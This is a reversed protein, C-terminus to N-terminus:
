WASDPEHSKEWNSASQAAEVAQPNVRHIVPSGPHATATTM